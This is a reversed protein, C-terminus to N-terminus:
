QVAIIGVTPTSSGTTGGYPPAGGYPYVTGSSSVLWYGSTGHSASIGVIPAGLNGDAESGYFGGDGFAFVGGDSAV